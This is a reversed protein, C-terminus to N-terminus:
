TGGLSKFIRFNAYTDLKMSAEYALRAKPFDKLKWYCDGINSQVDAKLLPNQARAILFQGMAVSQEYRGQDFYARSLFYAAQLQAPDESLAKEWWGVAVGSEERRYQVIGMQVYAWALRQHLIDALPGSAERVALLYEAIAAEPHRERAYRDGVYFRAQPHSPPGLHYYIQGFHQHMRESRALQSDYHQAMEYERVAEAHQGRAMYRDGRDQFYQAVVGKCVLVGQSGFVVIATLATWRLTQRGGGVCGGISLLFGGLLCVWWGLGMFYAAAILRDLVTDTALSAQFTPAIGLNEPLYRQSFGIIQTYQANEDVLSWFTADFFTLHLVSFACLGLGSVGYIALMRASRRIRAVVALAGILIAVWEFSVGPHAQGRIPAEIWPQFPSLVMFLAGTVAMVTM